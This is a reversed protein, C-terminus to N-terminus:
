WILQNRYFKRFIEKLRKLLYTRARMRPMKQIETKCQKTKVLMFDFDLFSFTEGNKLDVTKIKEENLGVNIRM